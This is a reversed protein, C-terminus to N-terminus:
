FKKKKEFKKKKKQFIIGVKGYDGDGWSWVNDDDTICLTQADGSGTFWFACHPFILTASFDDSKWVTSFRQM